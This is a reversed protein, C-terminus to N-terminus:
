KESYTVTLLPMRYITSISYFTKSRKEDEEFLKLCVGYNEINGQVWSRVINSINFSVKAFDGKVETRCLEESNYIPQIDWRHNLTAIDFPECITHLSFSLSKRLQTPATTLTFVANHIDFQSIEELNFYIIGRSLYNRDENFGVSFFEPLEEEETEMTKAVEESSFNLGVEHIHSPKLCIEQWEVVKKKSALSKRTLM